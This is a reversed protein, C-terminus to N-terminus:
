SSVLLSQAHALITAPFPTARRTLRDIHVATLECIACVEGTEANRMEHVWTLKREGVAVLHSWVFGLLAFLPFGTPHSIGLIYPVGQFEATDWSAPEHSVSAIYIAAPM